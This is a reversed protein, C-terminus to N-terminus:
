PPILCADGFNNNFNRRINVISCNIRLGESHRKAIPTKWVLTATPELDYRAFETCAARHLYSAFGQLHSYLLFMM